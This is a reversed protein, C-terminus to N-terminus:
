YEGGLLPLPPNNDSERERIWREIERLVNIMDKKVKLDDFRLFSVGLSEIRKQREIDKLYAEETNHSQGDIEIALMLEKCYFDVIYQDIPRQRDFDHGMVKKQKLKDWLLVESLTMNKRLAKALPKLKPDYPIIKRKKTM